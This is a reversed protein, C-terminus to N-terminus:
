PKVKIADLAERCAALRTTLADREAEADKRKNILLQCRQDNDRPENTAILKWEACELELEEVRRQLRVIEDKLSNIYAMDEPKLSM